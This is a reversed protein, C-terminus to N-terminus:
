LVAKDADFEWWAKDAAFAMVTCDTGLLCSTYLGINAYDVEYGNKVLEDYLKLSLSDCGVSLYLKSSKGYEEKLRLMKKAAAANGKVRCILEVVGLKESSSKVNPNYKYISVTGELKGEYPKRLIQSDTMVSTNKVAIYTVPQLDGSLSEFVEQSGYGKERMKIAKDLLMRTGASVARHPVVYVNRRPFKVAENKAAKMVKVYSDNDGCIHVVDGRNREFITDFYEEYNRESVAAAKPLGNRGIREYLDDFEDLYEPESIVDDGYRYVAGLYFVRNATLASPSIDCKLDTSIIFSM